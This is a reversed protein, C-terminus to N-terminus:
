AKAGQNENWKLQELLQYFQEKTQQKTGDNDIVYDAEKVKDAISIQSNIRQKADRDSLYDRKKLRVLQQEPSAYVVIVKEMLDTLKLEYLLPIDLIILCHKEKILQDREKIIQAIIIPHIIANLQKRKTQDNFIIQGLKKRNIQQDSSLIDQGFASVIGQYAEAGPEVVQRSILDADVIPIGEQKFLKAVTSKGTAISGTLGIVQTM